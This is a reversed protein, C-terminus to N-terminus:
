DGALESSCGTDRTDQGDSALAGPTVSAVIRVIEAWGEQVRAMRMRRDRLEALDYTPQKIATRVEEIVRVIVEPRLDSLDEFLLLREDLSSTPLIALPYAAIGIRVAPRNLTTSLLEEAISYSYRSLLDAGSRSTRLADVATAEDDSLRLDVPSYFVALQQRELILDDGSGDEYSCMFADAARSLRDAAQPDSTPARLLLYIYHGWEAQDNPDLMFDRVVLSIESGDGITYIRELAPVPGPAPAGAPADASAPAAQESRSPSLVFLWMIMLMVGAVGAVVAAVRLFRWRWLAIALLVVVMLGLVDIAIMLREGRAQFRWGFMYEILDARSRGARARFLGTPRAWAAMGFAVRAACSPSDPPPSM